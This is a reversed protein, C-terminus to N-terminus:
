DESPEVGEQSEIDQPGKVNRLYAEIDKINFQSLLEEPKFQPAVEEPQHQTIVEEPKLITILQELPVSAVIDQPSLGQLRKAPSLTELITNEIVDILPELGERQRMEELIELIM